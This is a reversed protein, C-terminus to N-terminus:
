PLMKGRPIWREERRLEAGVGINFDMKMHTMTVGNRPGGAPAPAQDDAMALADRVARDALGHALARAGDSLDRARAAGPAHAAAAARRDALDDRGLGDVGRGDRQALDLAQDAGASGVPRRVGSENENSQSRGRTRDMRRRSSPGAIRPSGWTMSASFATSVASSVAILWYKM